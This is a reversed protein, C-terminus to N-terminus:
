QSKAKQVCTYIVQLAKKTNPGQADGQTKFGAQTLGDQICHAASNAQSSSLGGNEFGQVLINFYDSSAIPTSKPVSHPNIGSTTSTTSAATSTTSSSGGGGCGTAALAAVILLGALAGAATRTIPSNGV